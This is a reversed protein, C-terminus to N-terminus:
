WLSRALADDVEEVTVGTGEAVLRVLATASFGADAIWVDPEPRSSGDRWLQAWWGGLQADWGFMSRASWGELGVPRSSPRGDREATM